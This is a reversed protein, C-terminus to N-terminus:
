IVLFSGLYKILYKNIYLVYHKYDLFSILISINIIILIYMTSHKEAVIFSLFVYFTLFCILFSNLAEV